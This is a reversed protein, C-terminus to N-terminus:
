TLHCRFILLVHVKVSVAVEHIKHQLLSHVDRRDLVTMPTIPTLPKCHSDRYHFGFQLLAETEPFPKIPIDFRMESRQWAVDVPAHVGQGHAGSFSEFTSPLLHCVENISIHMFRTWGKVCQTNNTNDHGWTMCISLNAYQQCIISISMTVHRDCTPEHFTSGFLWRLNEWPSGNHREHKARGLLNNKGPIGCLGDVQHRPCPTCSVDRQKASPKKNADLFFPSSFFRPLNSVSGLDPSSIRSVTISLSSM